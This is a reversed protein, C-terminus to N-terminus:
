KKFLRTAGFLEPNFLNYIYEQAQETNTLEDGRLEAIRLIATILMSMDGDGVVTESIYNETMLGYETSSNHANLNPFYVNFCDREKKFCASIKEKTRPDEFLKNLADLVIQGEKTLAKSETNGLVGDGVIDSSVVANQQKAIEQARALNKKNMKPDDGMLKLHRDINDSMRTSFNLREGMERIAADMAKTDQNKLAKNYDQVLIRVDINKSKAAEYMSTVIPKLIKSAESFSYNDLIDKTLSTDKILFGLISNRNDIANQYYKWVESVNNKNIKSLLLTTEETNAKGFVRPLFAKALNDAIVDSSLLSAAKSFEGESVKLASAAQKLEQKDLVGDSGAYKLVFNNFSEVESNELSENNNKDFSAYVNWINENRYNKNISEFPKNLYLNTNASQFKIESAM